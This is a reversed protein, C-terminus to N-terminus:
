FGYKLKILLWKKQNEIKYLGAGDHTTHMYSVGLDLSQVFLMWSGYSSQYKPTFTDYITHKVDKFIM